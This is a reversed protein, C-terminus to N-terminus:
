VVKTSCSPQLGRYGDIEVVCVYCSSYPDLRPDHCLTPIEVNQRHALELVTEGQKGKVIKGNLIINLTESM